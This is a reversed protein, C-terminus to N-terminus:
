SPSCGEIENEDDKDGEPSLTGTSEEEPHKEGATTLVSVAKLRTAANAMM